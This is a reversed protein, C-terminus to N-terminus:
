FGEIVPASICRCNILQGPYIWQQEDPDFWGRDVDYFPGGLQGRSFAVHSPRPVKGATSHVWRARRIGLEQQRVRTIAALAKHNQDRAILAARKRTLSYREEMERVADSVKGGMQVSRMIIGQVDNLHQQGISRILQVNQAVTARAVDAAAASLRFKVTIGADALIKAMMTDANRLAKNAFYRALEVSAADFRSEWRSGLEEFRRRLATGPAEDAALTAPPNKRWQAQLWYILSTSMEEVLKQLRTAYDAEIGANYRV